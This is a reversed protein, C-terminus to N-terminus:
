PKIRPTKQQQKKTKKTHWCAPEALRSLLEANEEERDSARHRAHVCVYLCVRTIPCM